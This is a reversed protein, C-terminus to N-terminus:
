YAKHNRHVYPVMNVKKPVRETVCTHVPMLSFLELTTEGRQRWLQVTILGVLVTRTIFATTKGLEQRCGCLRTTTLVAAAHGCTSDAHLIPDRPQIVHGVTQKQDVSRAASERM